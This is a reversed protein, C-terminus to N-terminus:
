GALNTSAKLFVKSKDLGLNVSPGMPGVNYRIDKGM